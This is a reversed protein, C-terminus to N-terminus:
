AVGRASSISRLWALAESASSPRHLRRRQTLAAVFDRFEGNADWHLTLPAVPVSEARRLVEALDRAGDRLPHRGTAAEHFTIGLAFLDSRADIERKFNRFQEPPAYGATGQGWHAATPTLSNLDLHRAVGFDLLWFNGSLDQVINDPKVDRHVIRVSEAAALAELMHLALRLVELEDLTRTQLVGRLSEGIVRQERLWVVQGLTTTVTGVEYVRPVRVSAVQQVALVERRTREVGDPSPIILKLVVDGESRHLASFVWKQGGRALDAINQLDPFQNQLWTPDITM